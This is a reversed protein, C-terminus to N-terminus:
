RDSNALWREAAAVCAELPRCLLAYGDLSELFRRGYARTLMRRDLVAVVGRDTRRRILRGFGQRFGIIAQPIYYDNQSDVGRRELHERRAEILPDTPVSFPLKAIVVLRLAYGPVDVGEWFSKVGFLVTGDSRRLRDLLDSRSGSIDQCLLQLGEAELRPQLEEYARHMTTRATFLVLTGGGAARALGLISAWLAEQYARESPLPMDTPICLLLQRAFDFPSPVRLEVLRDAHSDLGVRQRFYDFRRDVTLTASTFVVTKKRSYLRDALADGVCIPASRLAWVTGRKSQDCEIWCVEDPSLGAIVNTLVGVQEQWRAMLGEVERQLGELDMVSNPWLEALGEAVQAIGGALASAARGVASAAERVGSWRESQRVDDTIRVAARTFGDARTPQSTQVFDAVAEGLLGIEGAVARAHKECETLARRVDHAVEAPAARQLRASVTRLLGGRADDGLTERLLAGLTWRSTEAGFQDTAVDEFNHAEDVILHEYDPMVQSATDALLLAHNVVVIHANEARRRAREVACCTRWACTRGLCSNGDSRVEELLRDLGDLAARAEPSIDAVEGSDSEMLWRILFAAQLRE